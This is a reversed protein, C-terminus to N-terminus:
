GVAFYSNVWDEIEVPATFNPYPAVYDETQEPFVQNAMSKLRDYSVSFDRPYAIRVLSM